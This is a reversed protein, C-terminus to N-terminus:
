KSKFEWRYKDSDDVEEAFFESNTLRLITLTTTEKDRTDTFIVKDKGSNFEWTSEDRQTGYFMEATGDKEINLEVTGMLQLFESTIDKGNYIVKDLKWEGALRAKKSRLSMSPGEEYKKCSTFNVAVFMLTAAFLQTFYFKKM